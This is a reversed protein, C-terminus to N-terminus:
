LMGGVLYAQGYASNYLNPKSTRGDERKAIVRARGEDAESYAYVTKDMIQRAQFKRAASITIYNRLAHTLDNFPIDWIVNVTVAEEFYNTRKSKSYMLWSRVILDGDQSSISLVNFPIPIKGDTSVPFIYEKDTNVDWSDALIERKAENIVSLAIRAELVENYDEDAELPSEGIMQLLVNVADLLLKSSDQEFEEYAM